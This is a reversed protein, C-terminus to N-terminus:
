TPRFRAGPSGPSWATRAVRRRAGPRRPPHGTGQVTLLVARVPCPAKGAGPRDRPAALPAKGPGTAPAASTRASAWPAVVLLCSGTAEGARRSPRGPARRRTTRFAFRRASANWCCRRPAGALDFPCSRTSRTASARWGSRFEARRTRPAGRLAWSVLRRRM